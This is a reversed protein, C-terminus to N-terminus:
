RACDESPVGHSGAELSYGGARRGDGDEGVLGTVGVGTVLAVGHDTHLRSLIGAAKPGLQRLLPKQESEVIPM